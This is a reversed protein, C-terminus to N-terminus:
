EMVEEEVIEDDLDVVIEEEIEVDEASVEQQGDDNLLELCADYLQQDTKMGQELAQNMALISAEHIELLGLRMRMAQRYAIPLMAQVLEFLQKDADRSSKISQNMAKITAQRVQLSYLRMQNMQTHIGPLVTRVLDVVMDPIPPQMAPPWDPTTSM